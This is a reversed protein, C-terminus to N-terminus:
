FSRRGLGSWKLVYRYVEDMFRILDGGSLGQPVPILPRGDDRKIPHFLSGNKGTGNRWVRLEAERAPDWDRADAVDLTLCRTAVLKDEDRGREWKWRPPIVDDRFPNVYDERPVFNHRDGLTQICSKVVSRGKGEPDVVGIIAVHYPQGGTM